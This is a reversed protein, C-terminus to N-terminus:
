CNGAFQRELIQALEKLLVKYLDANLSPTAHGYFYVLPMELPIGEVPDIPMEIPTAAICGPITISGQGIDLDVFTPKWGQKAAWSLLMRSLTSKGSDTPGVVIVRPGQSSDSDSSSAKARNRRGELVAHVNVYSIMPTEDATYDTETIGDMEITAEMGLLFQLNSGQLSPSGSKPLEIRLECEKDLKVQRTALSGGAAAAPPGVIAGGYAMILRKITSTDWSTLEKVVLKCVDQIAHYYGGIGSSYLVTVVRRNTRWEKTADNRVAPASVDRTPPGKLTASRFEFSVLRLLLPSLLQTSPLIFLRTLIQPKSSNRKRLQFSGVEEIPKSAESNKMFKDVFEHFIRTATGQLSERLFIPERSYVEVHIALDQFNSESNDVLTYFKITYVISFLGNPTFM